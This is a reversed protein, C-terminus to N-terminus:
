EGIDGNIKKKLRAEETPVIIYHLKKKVSTSLLEIPPLLSARFSLEPTKDPTPLGLVLDDKFGDLNLEESVKINPEDQNGSFDVQRRGNTNM